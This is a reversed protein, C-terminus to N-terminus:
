PDQVPTHIKQEVVWAAVQSRSHFGLKNFINVVHREATAASIVLADGIQRNTLGRAVLLAVERERPTLSGVNQTPAALPGATPRAAGGAVFLRWTGLSDPAARQSQEEFDIGSGAVLDRVTSSVLVDGANAQSMAWAAIRFAIGGLHGDLVDCEGTHLAARVELGLPRSAEVIAQACRIGRAPGDFTATFGSGATGAPQGRFRELQDRILAGHAAEIARWRAAGVDASTNAANVTEMALVTALVRDPQASPRVGTLFEEIPDLVADQDGVFPLHDEGPLEVLRANPIHEALYRSSQVPTARDATRHIVLTPVRVSPLLARIDIDNNMRSVAEAAGPSASQRLYTAWWRGFQEDHAVSPARRELDRVVWAPTAWEQHIGALRRAREEPTAGWPYDPAWMLRPVCGFLVLAATREPYTAAFLTCLSGGESIGVLVTRRSGAADMVARVDDMRQELTPLGVARDSLGTGRKDFLIVRAFSALRRLFRAFRPEQWYYDLHSVWGMVFVLDLSGSGVVQYAISVDGSRAYRTELPSYPVASSAPAPVPEPRAGLSAEAIARDLTLARGEEFASAYASASLARRAPALDRDRDAHWVPPLPAGITEHLAEAAGALRIGRVAEGADIAVGALFELLYPVCWLYGQTRCTELSEHWMSEAASRDGDDSAVRGLYALAVATGWQDQLARLMPLSQDIFARAATNDGAFHELLGLYSLSWATGFQSDLAREIALSERLRQRAAEFAGRDIGMRGLNRLAAAAAADNGLTRAHQLGSELHHRAADYDGQRFALTGAAILARVHHPTAGDAHTHSLVRELQQRGESLYGRLWWFQWLAAALRQGLATDEVGGDALWDLAQRLNDHEAELRDLWVSQLAGRLGAEAELGLAVCWEAHRRRFREAEGSEELQQRAFARIMELLRYRVEHGREEAIVLSQDVLQGLLPLIQADPLTEDACIAEAAEANFGGAFVALRRLLAREPPALLDYSWGVAARLTHHRTPYDGGPEGPLELRKRLRDLISRPSLVKIGAAALELALPLGDLRVCLDAVAAANHGGLTFDARRARAREVFLSVSPVSALSEPTPPATADPLALPPVAFEHEWRWLRLAARSTVMIKLRPSASLLDPLLPAAELLHEFNDLVALVHRDRLYLKLTELLPQSGIDRLGVATAVASPVLAPTSVAALDVFVCGHDFSAHQSAALEIALRTKGTGGAGTLTLLRVEPRAIIETLHSLERQRGILPTPQPPLDHVRPALSSSGALLHQSQGQHESLM